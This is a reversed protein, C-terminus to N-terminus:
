SLHITEAIVNICKVFVVQEWTPSISAIKEYWQWLPRVFECDYFLHRLTEVSKQCFTCEDSDKIKYKVLQINTM